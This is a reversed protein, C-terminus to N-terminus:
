GIRRQQSDNHPTRALSRWVRPMIALWLAATLAAVLWVFPPVIRLAHRALLVVAGGLDTRAFLVSAALTLLGALGLGLSVLLMPWLRREDLTPHITQEM